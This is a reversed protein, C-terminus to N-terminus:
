LKLPSEPENVQLTHCPLTQLLITGTKTTTYIQLIAAPSAEFLYWQGPFILREQEGMRGIQLQSSANKYHCLIRGDTDTLLGASYTAM